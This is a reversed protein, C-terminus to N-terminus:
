NRNYGNLYKTKMCNTSEFLCIDSSSKILKGIKKRSDLKKNKHAFILVTSSLPQQFYAELSDLTKLDQAEKVIILQRDSMVPYRRAHDLVTKYDIDKGYLITQNFAKATDDLLHQEFYDVIKDIFFSEEGHLFYIPYIQKKKAATIIQSYSIKKSMSSKDPRRM